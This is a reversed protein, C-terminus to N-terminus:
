QLDSKIRKSKLWELLKERIASQERFAFPENGPITWVKLADFYLLLDYERVASMEFGIELVKGNDIYYIIGSRGHYKIHFGNVKLLDNTQRKSPPGEDM